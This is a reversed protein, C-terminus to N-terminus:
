ARGPKSYDNSLLSCMGMSAAAIVGILVFHQLPPAEWLAAAFCAFAIASGIAAILPARVAIPLVRTLSADVMLSLWSVFFGFVYALIAGEAPDRLAADAGDRIIAWLFSGLVGFIPGFLLYIWGRKMGGVQQM